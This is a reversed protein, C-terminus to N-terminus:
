HADIQFAIQYAHIRYLKSYSKSTVIVAEIFHIGKQKVKAKSFYFCGHVGIVDVILFEIVDSEIFRGDFEFIVFIARKSVTIEPLAKKLGYGKDVTIKDTAIKGIGM